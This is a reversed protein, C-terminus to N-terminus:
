RPAIRFYFATKKFRHRRCHHFRGGLAVGSSILNRLGMSDARQFDYYNATDDDRISIVVRTGSLRQRAIMQIRCSRARSHRLLNTVSEQFFRYIFRWYGADLEQWADPGSSVQLRYDIGSTKLLTAIRGVSLEAHIAGFDMHEDALKNLVARMRKETYELMESAKGAAELIGSDQARDQLVRMYLNAAVLGQGVDDHLSRIIGNVYEANRAELSLEVEQLNRILRRERHASEILSRESTRMREGYISASVCTGVFLLLYVTNLHWTSLSWGEHASSFLVICTFGAIVSPLPGNRFSLYVMIVLLLTLFLFIVSLNGTIDYLRYMMALLFVTLASMVASTSALRVDLPPRGSASVAYIGFVLATTMYANLRAFASSVTYSFDRDALLQDVLVPAASGALALAALVCVLLYPATEPRQGIRDMEPRLLWACAYTAVVSTFHVTMLEINLPGALPYIRDFPNVAVLVLELLGAVPYHLLRLNFVAYIRLGFLVSVYAGEINLAMFLPLTALVLTPWLWLRSQNTAAAM